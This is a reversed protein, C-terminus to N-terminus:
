SVDQWRFNRCHLSRIALIGGALAWSLNATIRASLKMLGSCCQCRLRLCLLSGPSETCNAVSLFGDLHRPCSRNAGLCVSARCSCQKGQMESLFCKHLVHWYCHRRWWDSFQFCYLKLLIIEYGCKYFYITKTAINKQEIM